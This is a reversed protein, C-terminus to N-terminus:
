RDRGRCRRRSPPAPDALPAESAPPPYESPRPAFSPLPTLPSSGRAPLRLMGAHKNM